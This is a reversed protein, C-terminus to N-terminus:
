EVVEIAYPYKGSLELAATNIDQETAFQVHEHGNAWYTIMYTM